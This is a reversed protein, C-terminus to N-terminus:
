RRANKARKDRARQNRLLRAAEKKHAKTEGGGAQKDAPSPAAAKRDGRTTYTAVKLGEVLEKAREPRFGAKEGASYPAYKTSFTVSVMGNGM